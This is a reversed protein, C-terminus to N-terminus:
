GCCGFGGEFAGWVVYERAAAPEDLLADRVADGRHARMDLRINSHAQHTHARPHLQPLLEHSPTHHLNCTRGNTQHTNYPHSTSSSPCRERLVRQEVRRARRGRVVIHDPLGGLEVTYFSDPGRRVDLRRRFRRLRVDYVEEVECVRAMEVEIEVEVVVEVRRSFREDPKYEVRERLTDGRPPPIDVRLVQADPM